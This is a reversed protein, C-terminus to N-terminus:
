NGLRELEQGIVTYEIGDRIIILQGNRLLKQVNSSNVETNEVSTPAADKGVINFEKWIPADKYLGISETPVYVPISRDVDEFTRAAVTPPTSAAVNMRRLKSCLAFGNDAIYQMSEPLTIESMYTCGYFAAYGIETVGEPITVDKLEHCNYFAWNGITTLASEKAFNVTSLMRCNEFASYRIEYVTAPITVSELFRCDAFASTGISTM